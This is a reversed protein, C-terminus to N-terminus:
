ATTQEDAPNHGTSVHSAEAAQAPAEEKPFYIALFDDDFVHTVGDIVHVETV